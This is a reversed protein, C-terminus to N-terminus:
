GQEAPHCVACLLGAVPHLFPRSWWGAGTLGNAVSPRDPSPLFPGARRARQPLFPGAVRENEFAPQCYAPALSCRPPVWPKELEAHHIHSVMEAM